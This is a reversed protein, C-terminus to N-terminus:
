ATELKIEGRAQRIVTVANTLALGAIVVGVALDPWGTKSVWVGSAALIVAINAIADNRSCLWVSRMNSDGQRYRYLLGASIVNALLALAGIGGMIAFDPLTGRAMHYFTNGLVWIGFGGMTRWRISMGLVILTIAYTAADGLFDLADAQLAVSKGWVGAFMEVVFMSANIVLVAWLVRRYSGTAPGLDACYDNNVTM